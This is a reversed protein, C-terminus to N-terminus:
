SVPKRGSSTMPRPRAALESLERERRCLYRWYGALVVAALGYAAFVFGWHDATV